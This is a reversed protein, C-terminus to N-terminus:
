ERVVEANSAPAVLRILRGKADLYLDVELDPTQVRLEEAANAVGAPAVSNVTVTGPTMEQPVLVSFTQSGKKERDYLRALIAYQHYLNNDLIAVLPSTFTFQQTFPRANELHLTITAISNQFQIEASAKKQGQTSWEYAVPSGDAQLTLRSTIHTPAGGPPRVDANGQATWRDGSPHIEFEETGIPAGNISIKFKGKDSVFIGSAGASSGSSPRPTASLCACVALAAAVAAIARHRHRHATRFFSDNM